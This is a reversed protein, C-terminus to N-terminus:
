RLDNARSSQLSEMSVEGIKDPQYDEPPTNINDTHDLTVYNHMQRLGGEGKTSLESFEQDLFSFNDSLVNYNSAMLSFSSPEEVTEAQVNVSKSTPNLHKYIEEGFLVHHNKDLLLLAPVKTVTPPLIIDQGNELKIYTADGKRFREDICLFHIKNKVTDKALVQLLSKCNDCYNSYYLISSM